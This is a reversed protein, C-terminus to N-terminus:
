FSKTVYFTNTPESYIQGGYYTFWGDSRTDTGTYYWGADVGNAFSKNLGILWDAYSDLNNGSGAFHQYGYHLTGSVGKLYKNDVLDSLPIDATIDYYTSGRADGWTWADKSTVYHVTADVWGYGVGAHVETTNAKAGGAVVDGPYLYQLIGVDYRLGTDGIENAYGAYLDLEMSGGSDYADTEQLWSINSAWAGAYLGSSHEVDVGGQVAPDGNTQTYGRFMYQSFLGVNYSISYDSKPEEEAFSSFTPLSLAAVLALKLKSM